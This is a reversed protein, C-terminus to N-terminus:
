LVNVIRAPRSTVFVILGKENLENLYTLLTSRHVGLIECLANLCREGDQILELCYQRIKKARSSIKATHGNDIPAFEPTREIAAIAQIMPIKM